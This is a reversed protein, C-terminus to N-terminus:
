GKRLHAIIVNAVGDHDDLRLTPTDAIQIYLDSCLAILTEADSVPHESVGFRVIEIKPYATHKGGELM